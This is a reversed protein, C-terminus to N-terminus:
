AVPIGWAERILPVAKPENERREIDRLRPALMAGFEDFSWEGLVRVPHLPSDTIPFVRELSVVAPHVARAPMGAIAEAIGHVDAPSADELWALYFEITSAFVYGSWADMLVRRGETGLVRWTDRVLPLARRDGLLLIGSLVAARMREDDMDRAIRFAELPGTMPDGDRLPMLLATEFAARQIVRPEEEFLVFPLLSCVSGVGEEVTCAVETMLRSRADDSSRDAFRRYAEETEDATRPDLEAGFELCARFLRFRLSEYESSRRAWRRGEKRRRGTM